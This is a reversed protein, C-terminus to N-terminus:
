FDISNCGQDFVVAGPAAFREVYDDLVVVGRETFADFSFAVFHWEGDSVAYRQLAYFLKERKNAADHLKVLPAGNDLNLSSRHVTPDVASSLDVLTRVGRLDGSRFWLMVTFHEKVLPM